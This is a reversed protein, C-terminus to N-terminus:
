DAAAVSKRNIEQIVDGRKLGAEYAASDPSVETVVAGKVHAPVKLEQRTASDLDTVAVGSLGESSSGEQDKHEASALDTNPLEKLVVDITRTKGERLVKVPVTAGPASQAVQLKLHRSDQVPKGNFETIVDGSKLGAKE